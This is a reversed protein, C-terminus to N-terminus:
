AAIREGVIAEAYWAAGDRVLELMCRTGPAIRLMQALVDDISAVDHGCVRMLVDGARVGASGAPSGVVVDEVAAGSRLVVRRTTDAPAPAEVGLWGHTITGTRLYQEVAGRIREAPVIVATLGSVTARDGLDVSVLGAFNGVSDLVVAGSAVAPMSRALTIVGVLKVGQGRLSQDPEDVENAWGRLGAGRGGGLATIAAGPTLTAEPRDARPRRLGGDTRIIALDSFADRAVIEGRHAVGYEDIVRLEPALDGKDHPVVLQLSTVVHIGDGLVMGNGTRVESTDATHVGVIGNANDAVNNAVLTALPRLGLRQPEDGIGGATVLLSGALVAGGVVTVLGLAWPNRRLATPAPPVVGRSLEAPHRWLRDDLPPPPRFAVSDDDYGDEAGVVRSM